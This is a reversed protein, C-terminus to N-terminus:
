SVYMSQYISYQIVNQKCSCSMSVIHKKQTEKKKMQQNQRCATHIRKSLLLQLCHSKGSVSRIGLHKGSFKIWKNTNKSRSWSNATPKSTEKKKMEICLSLSCSEKFVFPFLWNQNPIQKLKEKRRKQLKAGDFWEDSHLKFQVFQKKGCQVQIKPFTKTDGRNSYADLPKAKTRFTQIKNRFMEIKKWVDENFIRWHQKFETENRSSDFKVMQVVCKWKHWRENKDHFSAIKGEIKWKWRANWEFVASLLYEIWKSMWVSKFLEMNSTTNPLCSNLGNGTTM